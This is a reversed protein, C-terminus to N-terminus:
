FVKQSTAQLQPLRFYMFSHAICLFVNHIIDQLSVEETTALTTTVPEATPQADTTTPPPSVTVRATGQQPQPQGNSATCVYTGSVAVTAAQM